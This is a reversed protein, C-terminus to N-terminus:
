KILMMKKFQSILKGEGSAPDAILRYFYVGSSLQSGDFDIIQHGNDTMVHDILLAIEQGLVNYVKLSVISPETLTYEITTMPNFPNPYNQLLSFTNPEDVDDPMPQFSPPPAVIKTGPILYPVSFMAKDSLLRLPSTSATDIPGVFASNIKQLTAALSNYDAQYRQWYTMLTDTKDAIERLTRNNCPNPQASTDRFVIDGFNAPTIGVDSAAMNIRLALLEGALKNNYRWTAANKLMGTFKREFIRDFPRAGGNQVFARRVYLSRTFYEWGYSRSSDFREIGLVIGQSFAGRGFISDRVNGENPMNIVNHLHTRSRIVASKLSFGDQSITTFCGGGPLGNAGIRQSFLDTTGAGLHYDAWAIIAGNVNDSVLQPMFQDLPESNVPLGENNWFMTGNLGVRQAYIDFDGGRKDQWTILCDSGQLVIQPNYQHGAVDCIPLGLSSWLLQGNLDFRQAVINYDSGTRNDQWVVVAGGHNDCAIQPYYQAGAIPALPIGNAAWVANGSADIKQAFINDYNSSRRDQWVVIWKGTGDDVIQHNWQINPAICVPVGNSTWAATGNPLVRQCFIDTFGSGGRYDLWSVVAGGAGDAVLKPEIQDNTANCLLVGNATWQANGNGDFRQAYIDFRGSRRDQWTVIIGGHADGTIQPNYQHGAADCVRTGTPNWLLLGDPSVHQAYIDYDIGSRNDQWVIFLGGAGDALMQPYYQFGSTPSLAIGGAVWLPVGTSSMHQLYIKDATGSRRDQWALFGGSTSDAVLRINWQNGFNTSIPVSQDTRCPWDATAQSVCVVILFLLSTRLRVLTRM